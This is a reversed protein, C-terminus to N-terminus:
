KTHIINKSFKNDIKCRNLIVRPQYKSDSQCGKFTCKEFSKKPSTYLQFYCNEYVNNTQEGLHKSNSNILMVSKFSCQSATARCRLNYDTTGEIVGGTIDCNELKDVWIEAAEASATPLWSIECKNLTISPVTYYHKRNSTSLLRVDVIEGMLPEGDKPIKLSIDEIRSDKLYFSKPTGVISVFDCDEITTKMIFVKNVTKTGSAPEIDIGAMPATGKIGDVSGIHHIKCGYILVEDSDLISIGQRRCHHFESNRLTIIGGSIGNKTVVADGTFDYFICGTVTANVKVGPKDGVIYIGYGFEHTGAISKYDHSLRDGRIVLDKVTLQKCNTAKIANYHPYKNPTVNIIASRGKVTVKNLGAIDILSTNDKTFSVAYVGKPFFLVDGEHLSKVAKKIADTDNTKGNGRAGYHKVNITKANLLFPVFLLLLISFFIGIQKFSYLAQMIFM